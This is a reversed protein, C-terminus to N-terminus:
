SPHPLSPVNNIAHFTLWTLCNFALFYICDVFLLLVLSKYTILLIMVLLCNIKQKFDNGTNTAKVRYVLPRSLAYYRDFSIVCLFVFSWGSTLFICVYFVTVVNGLFSCTSSDPYLQMLRLTVFIPQTTIGTLCDTAALSGLLINCPKQLSPTKAITVIFALNSLFAFACFPINVAVVMFENILSGQDDDRASSALWDPVDCTITDNTNM